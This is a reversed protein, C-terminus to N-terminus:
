GIKKLKEKQWTGIRDLVTIRSWLDMKVSEAYDKAAYTYTSTTIFLTGMCKYARSGAFLKILDANGISKDKKWRKCQVAIKMGDKPDKIVLDVGHDGSVKTTEPKFGKAEFYMFCLREFDIGSLDDINTSLIEKDNLKQKSSNSINKRKNKNINNSSTSKKSKRKDPIRRIILSPVITALLLLGLLFQWSLNYIFILWLGPILIAGTIVSYFKSKNRKTM